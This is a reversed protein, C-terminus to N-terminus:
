EPRENLAYTHLHKLRDINTRNNDVQTELAQIALWHARLDPGYDRIAQDLRYTLVKVQHELKGIREELDPGPDPEADPNAHTNM